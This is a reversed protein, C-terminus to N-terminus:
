RESQHNSRRLLEKLEKLNEKLFMPHYPIIPLEFPYLSFSFLLFLVVALLVSNIYNDLKDTIFYAVICGVLGTVELLMKLWYFVDDGWKSLLNITKMLLVLFYNPYKEIEKDNFYQTTIYHKNAKYDECVVFKGSASKSTIKMPKGETLIENEENYSCNLTYICGIKFKFKKENAKIM